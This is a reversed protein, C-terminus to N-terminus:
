LIFLKGWGGQSSAIILEKQYTGKPKALHLLKGLTALGPLFLPLLYFCTQKIRLGKNEDQGGNNWQGERRGECESGKREKDEKETKEEEQRGRSKGEGAKRKTKM